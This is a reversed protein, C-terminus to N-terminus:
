RLRQYQMSTFTMTSWDYYKVFTENLMSYLLGM